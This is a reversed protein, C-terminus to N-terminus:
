GARPAAPPGNVIRRRVAPQVAALALCTAAIAGWALEPGGGALLQTGVLPAVVAAAGWSVGYVALYRGRHTDPALAAVVTYARGLLVLDGLSWVVTAAAFAPLGTAYGNLGLGVALALYGLTMATFDDLRRLAALRLLPQGVVMTTASLTLLLGVAAVPLGRETLTLPLAITIQLYVVAFATGVGLMALLRRDSWARVSPPSGGPERAPGSPPLLAAVLVACGLCTAADFVLLWRLDLGALLAALLGAGMGAAAMAAALLGFALPRQDAETVDAVTAQSAPEYIEFVLGLLMVALAAQALGGAGAVLLQAAATGALGVVITARRGIRDALRGGYLRSPITALGFGALLYGATTVSADHEEVLVVALFPLTFAGLRNVARALVLVWVTRPLDRWRRPERVETMTTM